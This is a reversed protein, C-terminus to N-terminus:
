ANKGKNKSSEGIWFHVKGGGFLKKRFEVMNEKNLNVRSMMKGNQWFGNGEKEKEELWDEREKEDKFRRVQYERGRKVMLRVKEMKEERGENEKL